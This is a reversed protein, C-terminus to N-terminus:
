YCLVWLLVNNTSRSAGIYCFRTAYDNIFKHNWFDRWLALTGEHHETNTSHLTITNPTYLRWFTSKIHSTTMSDLAVKNTLSRRPSPFYILCILMFSSVLEVPISGMSSMSDESGTNLQWTSNIGIKCRNLKGWIEVNQYAYQNERTILM